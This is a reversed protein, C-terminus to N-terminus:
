GEYLPITNPDFVPPPVQIKIETYVDLDVNKDFLNPPMLITGDEKIVLVEKPPNERDRGGQPTPSPITEPTPTPSVDPPLTPTPTPTPTPHLRAEETEIKDMYDCIKKWQAATPNDLYAGAFAVYYTTGNQEDPLDVLLVPEWDKCLAEVDISTIKQKKANQFQVGPKEFIQYSPGLTITYVGSGGGGGSRPNDPPRKPLPTPTVTPDATLDTAPTVSVDPEPMDTPLPTPTEELIPTPTVLVPASTPTSTPTNPVGDNRRTDIWSTPTAAVQNSAPKQSCGCLLLICGFFLICFRKM